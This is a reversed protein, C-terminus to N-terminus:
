YTGVVLIKIFHMLTIQKLSFKAYISVIFVQMFQRISEM